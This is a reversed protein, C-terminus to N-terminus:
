ESECPVCKLNPACETDDLARRGGHVAGRASGAVHRSDNAVCWTEEAFCQAENGKDGAGNRRRAENESVRRELCVFRRRSRFILRKVDVFRPAEFVVRTRVDVFRRWRVVRRGEREDSRRATRRL